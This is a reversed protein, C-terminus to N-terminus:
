QNVPHNPLFYGNKRLAETLTFSLKHREEHSMKSRDVTVEGDKTPFILDDHTAGIKLTVGMFM